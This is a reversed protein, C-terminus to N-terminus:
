QSEFKRVCEVREVRYKERCENVDQVSGVLRHADGGGVTRVM